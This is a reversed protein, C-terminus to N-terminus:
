VLDPTTKTKRSEAEKKVAQAFRQGLQEHNLGDFRSKAGFHLDSLHLIVISDSM